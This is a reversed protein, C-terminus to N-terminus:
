RPPSSRAGCFPRRREGPPGDSAASDDEDTAARADYGSDRVAAILRPSELDRGRVEAQATGLNVSADEVGPVAALASEITTVLLDCHM